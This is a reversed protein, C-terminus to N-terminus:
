NEIGQEVGDPLRARAPRGAGAATHSEQPILARMEEWVGPKGVDPLLAFLYKELYRMRYRTARTVYLGIPESFFSAIRELDGLSRGEVVYSDRNSIGFEGPWDIYPFGHMKHALVLKPTGSFALVHSSYELKLVPAGAKVVCTRINPHPHKDDRTASLTARAPPMGTKKVNLCGYKDVLPSWRALLLICSMPIPSGERLRWGVYRGVSDDWVDITPRPPAPINRLAVMVLPTQAQGKFWSSAEGADLCRLGIVERSLIEAYMGAKDPKMWLAPIICAMYGGPALLRLAHRVFATWMLRGDDSKKVDDTATPVRRRGDVNYPPNGIICDYMDAEPLSLFDGALINGQDGVVDRLFSCHCPQIESLFVQRAVAMDWASSGAEAGPAIRDLLPFVFSGTGAGMDLWRLSRDSFVRPPLMDLMQCVLEQPTRVEGYLNKTRPSPPRVLTETVRARASVMISASFLEPPGSVCVIVLVPAEM